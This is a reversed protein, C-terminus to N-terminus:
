TATLVYKIASFLLCRLPVARQAEEFGRAVHAQPGLLGDQEAPHAAPVALLVPKKVTDSINSGLLASGMWGILQAAVVLRQPHQRQIQVVVRAGFLVAGVRVAQAKHGRVARYQGAGRLRQFIHLAAQEEVQELRVERIVLVFHFPPSRRHVVPPRVACM